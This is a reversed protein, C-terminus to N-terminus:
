KCVSYLFVSDRCLFFFSNAVNINISHFLAKSKVTWRDKITWSPFSLDIFKTCIAIFHRQLARFDGMQSTHLPLSAKWPGNQPSGYSPSAICSVQSKSENTRQTEWDSMFIMRSSIVWRSETIWSLAVFFDLCIRKRERSIVTYKFFM